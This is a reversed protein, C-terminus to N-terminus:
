NFLLKDFWLHLNRQEPSFNRRSISRPDAEGGRLWSRPFHLVSRLDIDLPLKGRCSKRWGPFHVPVVAKQRLDSFSCLLPSSSSLEWPLFVFEETDWWLWLFNYFFFTDRGVDGLKDVSDIREVGEEPLFFVKWENPINCGACQDIGNIIDM